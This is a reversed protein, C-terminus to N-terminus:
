IILYAKLIIYTNRVFEVVILYMIYFFIKRLSGKDIPLCNSLDRLAKIEKIESHM